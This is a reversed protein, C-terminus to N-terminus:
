SRLKGAVWRLNCFARSSPCTVRDRSRDFRATSPVPARAMSMSAEGASSRSLPARACCSLKLALVSPCVVSRISRRRSMVSTPMPTATAKAAIMRGATTILATAVPPQTMLRLGNCGSKLRSLGSAPNPRMKERSCNVLTSLSTAM